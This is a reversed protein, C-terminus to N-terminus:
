SGSATGLATGTPSTGATRTYTSAGVRIIGDENIAFFRDAANTSARAAGVCFQTADPTAIVNSFVFGSKPSTTSSNSITTDVLNATNLQALTGYTQNNSQYTVQAGGVTRLSGIASAENATKRAQLLNPIAIAAIIGIIAVVILLEILSFGKEKNM